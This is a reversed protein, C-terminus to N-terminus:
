NGSNVELELTFVTDSVTAGQQTETDLSDDATSSQTGGFRTLNKDPVIFIGNDSTAGGDSAATADSFDSNPYVADGLTETINGSNDVKVVQVDAVPDGNSDHFRGLMIGKSLWDSKTTGAASAIDEITQNGVAFAASPLDLQSVDGEFDSASALGTATQVFTDDGDSSDDIFGVLGTQVPQTEVQPLSFSTMTDTTTFSTVASECASEPKYDLPEFPMGGLIEFANYLTLETNELTVGSEITSTAPHIEVSGDLDVPRSLMCEEATDPEADPMGTEEETGTDEDGGTDVATDMETGTDNEDSGGDDGDPGCAGAAFTLPLLAACLVIFLRKM